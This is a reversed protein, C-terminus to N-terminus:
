AWSGFAKRIRGEPSGSLSKNGSGCCTEAKLHGPFNSTLSSGTTKCRRQLRPRKREGPKREWRVFSRSKMSSLQRIRSLCRIRCPRSKLFPFSGLAWNGSCRKTTTTSPGQRKRPRHTKERYFETRLESVGSKCRPYHCDAHNSEILSRSQIASRQLKGSLKHTM